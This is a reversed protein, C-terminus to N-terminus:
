IGKNTSVLTYESHQGSQPTVGSVGNPQSGQGSIIYKLGSVPDKVIDKSSLSVSTDCFLIGSISSTDKGSLFTNNNSPVQILGEFTSDLIYSSPSSFSAGESFTYKELTKYYKSIM